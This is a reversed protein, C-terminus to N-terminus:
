VVSKRDRTLTESAGYKGQASLVIALNNLSVAVDPHEAGQQKQRMELAQRFLTEAAEYKGQRSLLSALNSLSMAVDPHEAGLLSKKMVLAQRFLTEAAAYKGQSSLVTALNNLSQAVDPHVSGHLQYDLALKERYHGESLAYRGLQYECRAIDSLARHHVADVKPDSLIRAQMALVRQCAPLAAECQAPTQAKLCQEHDQKPDSQAQALPLPGMLMWVVAQAVLKPIARSRM